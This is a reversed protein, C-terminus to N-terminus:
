VLVCQSRERGRTFANVNVDVFAPKVIERIVEEFVEASVPLLPSLAGVLVINATRPEGLDLAEESADVTCVRLGRRRIEELIGAPYDEQGRAVGPPAIRHTNVIVVAGPKLLPFYRMAEMLEFSVLVDGTGAEILPSYVRAGYRLHAVVSGGRQAMGHVESKKIDFGARLFALSTVNSALLIGQGGVGSIVINGSKM